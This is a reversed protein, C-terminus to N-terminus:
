ACVQFVSTQTVGGLPGASLLMRNSHLQEAYVASKWSERYGQFLRCFQACNLVTLRSYLPPLAARLRGNVLALGYGLAFPMTIHVFLACAAFMQIGQPLHGSVLINITLANFAVNCLIFSFLFKRVIVRN